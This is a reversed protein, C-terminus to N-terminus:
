RCKITNSLGTSVQQKGIPSPNFMAKRNMLAVSIMPVVILEPVLLRVPLMTALRNKISRNKIVIAKMNPMGNSNRATMMRGNQMAQTVTYPFKQSGITTIIINKPLM